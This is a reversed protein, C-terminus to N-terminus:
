RDASAGPEPPLRDRRSTALHCLIIAAHRPAPCRGPAHSFLPPSSIISLMPEGNKGQNNCKQKAVRWKQRGTQEKRADQYTRSKSDRFIYPLFQAGEEAFRKVTESGILGAPGTVIVTRM